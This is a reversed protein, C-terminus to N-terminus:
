GDREREIATTELKKHNFVGGDSRGIRIKVAKMVREDELMATATDESVRAYKVFHDKIKTKNDQSASQYEDYFLQQIAEESYARRYPKMALPPLMKKSRYIGGLTVGAALAKMGNMLWKKFIQGKSVANGTDAGDSVYRRYMINKAITTLQEDTKHDLLDIRAKEADTRTEADKVKLRYLEKKLRNVEAKIHQENKELRNKVSSPIFLTDFLDRQTSKRHETKEQSLANIANRIKWNSFGQSVTHEQDYIRLDKVKSTAKNSFYDVLKRLGASAPGLTSLAQKLAGKTM